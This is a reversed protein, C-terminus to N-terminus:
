HNLDGRGRLSVVNHIHVHDGVEIAAAAEGIAEGYKIVKDGPAMPAICFKHGYPIPQRIQFAKIDDGYRTQAQAGPALEQLATAVNDKDNVVIADITM